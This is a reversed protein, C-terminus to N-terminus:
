STKSAKKLYDSPTQGTFKTFARFFTARSSFGAEKALGDLTLQQSDPELMKDKLYDVRYRNIFDNFNVRYETNIIISLHHRPINIASAVDKLSCGHTLFIMKENMLTELKQKNEFVKEPTLSFIKSEDDEEAEGEGSEEITIAQAIEKSLVIKDSHIQQENFNSIAIKQKDLTYFVINGMMGFLIKPHFFLYLLISLFSLCLGYEAILIINNISYNTTIVSLTNAFVYCTIFATILITFTKLWSFIDKYVNPATIIETFWQKILQWQVVLYFVALIIKLAALVYVPLLMNFEAFHFAFQQEATNIIALKNTSTSFYYKTYFFICLICPIFHIWDKRRFRVNGKLFSRVYLYATPAILYQFPALLNHLLPYKYFVHTNICAIHFIFAAISFLCVALLRNAKKQHKNVFALAFFFLIGLFACAFFLKM